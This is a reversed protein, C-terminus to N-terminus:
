ARHTAHMVTENASDLNGRGGLSGVLSKQTFDLDNSGGQLLGTQRDHTTDVLM